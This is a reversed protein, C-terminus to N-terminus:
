HFSIMRHISVKDNAQQETGEQRRRELAESLGIIRGALWLRVAAVATAPTAPTTPVTPAFTAAATATSSVSGAILPALSAATPAPRLPFEVSGHRRMRHIENETPRRFVRNRQAHKGVFVHLAEDSIPRLFAIVWSFRWLLQELFPLGNFDQDRRQLWVCTVEVLELRVRGSGPQELVASFGREV